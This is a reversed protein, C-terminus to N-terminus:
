TRLRTSVRAGACSVVTLLPELACPACTQRRELTPKGRGEQAGNDDDDDNNNNNNNHRSPSSPSPSPSPSFSCDHLIM